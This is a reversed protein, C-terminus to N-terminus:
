AVPRFYTARVRESTSLYAYWVASYVLRGFIIRPLNVQLGNHALIFYLSIVLIPATWLYAKAVSVGWPDELWLLLGACFSFISLTVYTAGVSSLRLISGSHSTSVTTALNILAIWAVRGQVLPAFVTLSVCLFLLWGMVGAHLRASNVALLGCPSAPKLNGTGFTATSMATQPAVSGCKPCVDNVDATGCTQCYM